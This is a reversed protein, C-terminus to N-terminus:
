QEQAVAGSEGGGGESGSFGGDFFCDGGRGGGRVDVV